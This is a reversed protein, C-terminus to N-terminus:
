GWNSCDLVAKVVSDDHREYLEFAIGADLIPLRHTFFTELDQRYEIYLDRAKQLYESWNPTVAAVLHINKRFFTEYEITYVNHDPVGFAIVTGYKQVLM